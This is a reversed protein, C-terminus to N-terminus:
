YKNYIYILCLGLLKDHIFVLGYPSPNYVIVDIMLPNM